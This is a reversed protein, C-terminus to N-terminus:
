LLFLASDILIDSDAQSSHQRSRRSRSYDCEILASEDVKIEDARVALAESRGVSNRGVSSEVITGAGSVQVQGTANLEVSGAKDEASSADASVGSLLLSGSQVQIDDATLKVEGGEASRVDIASGSEILINGRRIGEDLSIENKENIGVVSANQVAVIEVRSGPSSINSSDLSVNEALLSLIKGSPVRLGRSGEIRIDSQTTALANFFFASPSISLLNDDELNITNFSGKEGLQVGTATTATFAGQVDLSANEGFVIGNPNMLILAANSEGTTGLLGNIDSFNSGTVRSLISDIGAPSEFYVRQAENVNFESFSHFLNAGRTAGGEILDAPLGNIDTNSITSSETGLTQDPVLQARAPLGLISTFSALLCVLILRSNRM